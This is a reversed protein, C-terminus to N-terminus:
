CLKDIYKVKGDEPADAIRDMREFILRCAGCVQLLDLVTKNGGFRHGHNTRPGPRQRHYPCSQGTHLRGSM